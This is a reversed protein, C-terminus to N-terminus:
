SSLWRFCFDIFIVRMCVCMRANDVFLLLSALITGSNSSGSSAQRTNEEHLEGEVEDERLFRLQSSETQPTLAHSVSPPPRMYANGSYDRHKEAKPTEKAMVKQETASANTASPIAVRRCFDAL